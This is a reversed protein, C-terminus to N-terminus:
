PTPRGRQLELLRELERLPLIPFPHECWQELYGAEGLEALLKSATAHVAEAFNLALCKTSFVLAGQDDPKSAWSERFEYIRLEIENLRAGTIVWRYEGPEEEFCFGIRDLFRLAACAALVLDGLADGLYSASVTCESHEDKVTCEAWGTGTLKFDVTLHM